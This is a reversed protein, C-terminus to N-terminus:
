ATLEQSIIVANSPVHVVDVTIRDGPRVDCGSTPAIRLEFSSGADFTNSTEAHLVGASWKQGGTGQSLFSDDGSRFNGDDFPLYDPSTATRSPTPGPLALVRATQGCADTADVVVEIDGVNLDDGAVHTISIIGGGPISFGDEDENPTLEGSSQGVVPAPDDVEEGFDLVFVSVSAALIVVIAVTLVTSVIPSVARDQGRPVM